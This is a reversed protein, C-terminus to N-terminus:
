YPLPKVRGSRDGIMLHTKEKKMRQLKKKANEYLNFKETESLPYDLAHALIWEVIEKTKCDRHAFSEQKLLENVARILNRDLKPLGADSPDGLDEWEFSDNMQMAIDQSEIDRGTVQLVPLQKSNGRNVQIHMLTDCIGQIGTSGSIDDFPDDAKNKKTHHVLLIAINFQIAIKQIPSLMKSDMEYANMGGANKHSQARILTDIVILRANNQKKIWDILQEEFGKLLDESDFIFQPFHMNSSFHLMKLRNNVRRQSDEFACYLVDGRITPRDLFNLGNAVAKALGLAFWSKGVKPRSALVSLGSPLLDPVVWNIPAFETEFLNKGDFTQLQSVEKKEEEPSLEKLWTRVVAKMGVTWEPLEDLTTYKTPKKYYGQLSKISERLNPNQVLQHWKTILHESYDYTFKYRKFEGIVCKLYSNRTGDEGVRPIYSVALASLLAIEYVKRKLEIYPLPQANQNVPQILAERKKDLKGQAVSYCNKIRLEIITKKKLEPHPFDLQKTGEHEPVSDPDAVEQIIHGLGQDGFSILRSPFYDNCLARAYPNDFDVDAFRPSPRVYVGLGEAPAETIPPLESWKVKSIKKYNERVDDWEQPVAIFDLGKQILPIINNM